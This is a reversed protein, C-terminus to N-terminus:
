YGFEVSPTPASERVMLQERVDASLLDLYESRSDVGFVYKDFWARNDELTRTERSYDVYFSDHHGYFGQVASPHAGWPEHAVADVRFGPIITRNPDARVVEPPVIEEVVVLVKEAAKAADMTVGFNGWSQTNGYRDARQAHIIALDPNIARVALVKQATFPCSIELFRTRDRSIDSGLLSHTVSFPAGMAGASLALAMSFNSHDEVKLKHPVGQEVARRFNYGVGTSVNGIWAAMIERVAGGGIMQDFLMDSIPGILTLDKFKQRIIEHGAAFPIMSELALGMAISMGDHVLLRVAERLSMIKSDNTQSM